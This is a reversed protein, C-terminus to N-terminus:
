KHTRKWALAGAVALLVAGGGVALWNVGTGAVKNPAAGPQPATGEGFFALVKQVEPSASDYRMNLSCPETYYGRDDKGLEVIVEEGQVPTMAWAYPDGGNVGYGRYEVPLTTPGSGRLYRVVEFEAWHEKPVKVIKARVVLSMDGLRDGPYMCSLAAAPRAGPVLVLLMLVSVMFNFFKRM